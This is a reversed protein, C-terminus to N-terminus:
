YKFKKHFKGYDMNKKNIDSYSESQYVCMPYVCYKNELLNYTNDIEIDSDEIWKIIKDINSRKFIQATTTLGNKIELINHGVRIADEKEKLNIGLYLINWDIDKLDMLALNLYILTNEEFIVDDELIMLYDPNLDQNYQRLIELHSLKCGSASKIYEINNKKWAKNNDILKYQNNETIKIASFREVNYLNIKNCEEWTNFLRDTREDLNIVVTKIKDWINYNINDMNKLYHFMIKLDFSKNANHYEKIKNNFNVLIEERNSNNIFNDFCGIKYIINKDILQDSYELQIYKYEFNSISIIKLILNYAFSINLKFKDSLYLNNLYIYNIKQKLKIENKKSNIEIINIQITSDDIKKIFNHWEDINTNENIFTIYQIDKSKNKIDIFIDDLYLNYYIYYNKYLSIYYDLNNEYNNNYNNYYFKYANNLYDQLNLLLERKFISINPYYNSFLLKKSIFLMNINELNINPEILYNDNFKLILSNEDLNNYLELLIDIDIKLINDSNYFIKVNNQKDLKNIYIENILKIDINNIYIIINYNNYKDNLFYLINSYNYYFNNNIIFIINIKFNLIYGSNYIKKNDNSNYIYIYDTNIPVNNNIYDLDILYNKNYFYIYYNNNNKIIGYDNDFYKTYIINDYSNKSSFSYEYKNLYTNNIYIKNDSLISTRYLINNNLIYKNFETVLLNNKYYEEDFNDKIIILNDIYHLLQYEPYFIKNLHSYDIDIDLNNTILYDCNKIFKDISIDHNNIIFFNIDINFYFNSNFENFIIVNMEHYNIRSLCKLFFKNTPEVKNSSIYIGIIQKNLNIPYNILDYKEKNFINDEILRIKNVNPFIDNFSYYITNLQKITYYKILDYKEIPLLHISLIKIKNDPIINNNYKIANLILIIYWEDDGFINIWELKNNIEEINSSIIIYTTSSLINDTKILSIKYNEKLSETIEISELSFDEKSYDEKSCDKKYCDEKSCEELSSNNNIYKGIFHWHAMLEINDNINLNPNNLKYSNINFNPYIKFFSDFSYIRNEIYGKSKWHYLLQNNNLNNLDPNFIKYLNYNIM